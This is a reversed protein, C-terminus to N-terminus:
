WFANWGLFMQCLNEHSRAERILRNVQMQVDLNRRSGAKQKDGDRGERLLAGQPSESDFVLGRASGQHFVGAETVGRSRTASKTSACTSNNKSQWPAIACARSHQMSKEYRRCLLAAQAWHSRGLAFVQPPFVQPFEAVKEETKFDTGVLKSRIRRLVKIARANLLKEDKHSQEQMHGARRVQM